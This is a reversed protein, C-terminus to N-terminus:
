YRTTTTITITITTTTAAAAATTTISITIITTTSAAAITTTLLLLLLLLIGNHNDSNNQCTHTERIERSTRPAGQPFHQGQHISRTIQLVMAHKQHRKFGVPAGRASWSMYTHICVHIYIHMCAHMCAYKHTYPNIYSRSVIILGGARSYDCAFMYLCLCVSVSMCVNM